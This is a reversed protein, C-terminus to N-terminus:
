ILSQYAVIIYNKVSVTKTVLIDSGTIKTGNNLSFTVGDTDHIPNMYSGLLKNYTDPQMSRPKKFRVLLEASLIKKEIMTELDPVESILECLKDSAFNFIKMSNLDVVKKEKPKKSAKLAPDIVKINKIDSLLMGKPPEVKPTFSYLREGRMAELLWNLYTQLPKIRTKPLNTVMFFKNLAFYYHEKCILLSGDDLGEIESMQITEKEFLDSPIAPSGNSPSIRWMVGFVYKENLSYDSILDEEDSDENLKLRRINSKNKDSLKITLNKMLDSFEQGIEGNDIEYASLKISQMNTEAM